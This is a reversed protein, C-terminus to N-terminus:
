HNNLEALAKNLAVSATQLQTLVDPNILQPAPQQASRLLALLAHIEQGQWGEFVGRVPTWELTTWTFCQKQGAGLSPNSYELPDAHWEEELPQNSPDWNTNLVHDRFGLVVRHGNPATLTHGDDQWGTPITSMSVGGAPPTASTPRPLWPPVVVTATWIQLRNAEYKRPGPRLSHPDYLNTCNAPDRVLFNGDSAIGSVVLIHNGRPSWATYPNEGLAMDFVSIESITLMVPYGAHVWGQVASVDLAITQFHMGLKQVILDYEEQLSMGDTNSLSNNGHDSAYWSEAEDIAAQVSQAPPQGVQAMAKIIAGSFYGCAFQTKAPQFQDVDLFDGIEGKSSLKVM